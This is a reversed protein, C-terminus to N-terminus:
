PTIIHTRAGKTDIEFHMERMKFRGLAKQVARKAKRTPCYFMFYGGGGAGMIKGGLAGARIAEAYIEDFRDTSMKSSMQKKIHWHEDMLKGFHHLKGSRFAKYVERGIDKTRHKLEQVKTADQEALLQKSERVVGTYYFISNAFFEEVTSKAIRPKEVKVKGNKEITLAVFGGEACIYPDQVGDPLGLAKTLLFSQEAAERNSLKKNQYLALGKLVAVACAGSSGLGTGAPTDAKFSIAVKTTLGRMLLAQRAIDHTVEKAHSVSEFHKYHVHVLDDSRPEKVFVDMYLNVAVGFVFGGHKEYYSPLDTSGGGLSLRFPTRSIIIPSSM